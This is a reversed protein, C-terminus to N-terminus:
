IQQVRVATMNRNREREDAMQANLLELEGRGFRDPDELMQKRKRLPELWTNDVYLYLDEKWQQFFFYIAFLSYIEMGLDYHGAHRPDQVCLQVFFALVLQQSVFLMSYVYLKRKAKERKKKANRFAAMLNWM